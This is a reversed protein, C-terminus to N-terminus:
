PAGRKPITSGRNMDSSSGFVIYSVYQGWHDGPGAYFGVGCMVAVDDADVLAADYRPRWGEIAMSYSVRGNFGRMTRRSLTRMTRELGQLPTIDGTALKEMIHELVGRTEPIDLRTVPPKGRAQRQRDLENLLETEVDHYARPEFATYTALLGWLGNTKKDNVTALAVQKADPDLVAARASPFFLMQSLFGPANENVTARFSLFQSERLPGPVDWGAMMGLAIFDVVAFDNEAAAAFFRPVLARATQSQLEVERLPARGLAARVGNIQELLTPGVAAGDVRVSQFTSPFDDRTRLVLTLMQRGLIADPAASMVDLVAYPDEVTVACTLDFEPLVARVDRAPRCTHFSTAGSTTYGRLWGAPNLLTGRIRVARADGPVREISTLKVKPVGFAAVAVHRGAESGTWVGLESSASTKTLVDDVFEMLAASSPPDTPLTYLFSPTVPVVGCRGAAFAQLDEEPLQGHRAIFRGIERAYCFMSETLLVGSKQAEVREAVGRALADGGTLPASSPRDPFPGSLDWRDVALGKKFAEERPPPPAKMIKALEARSPFGRDIVAPQVAPRVARRSACGALTFATALVLAARRGRGPMFMKM